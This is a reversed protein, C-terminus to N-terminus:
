WRFPHNGNSPGRRQPGIPIQPRRAQERLDPPARALEGAWRFWGPGGPHPGEVVSGKGEGYLMGVNGKQAKEHRKTTM